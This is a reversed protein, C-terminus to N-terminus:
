REVSSNRLRSLLVDVPIDGLSLVSTFYCMRNRTVCSKINGNKLWRIPKKFCHTVHYDGRFRHAVM